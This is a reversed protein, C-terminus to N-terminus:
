PVRFTAAPEIKKHDSVTSGTILASLKCNARTLAPFHTTCYVNQFCHNDGSQGFKVVCNKWTDKTMFWLSFCQANFYAVLM